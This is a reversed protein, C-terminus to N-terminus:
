KKSDYNVTLNCKGNELELEIESTGASYKAESRMVGKTAQGDNNFELGVASYKDRHRDTGGVTMMYRLASTCDTKVAYFQSVIIGNPTAKYVASDMPIADALVVKEATWSRCDWELPQRLAANMPLTCIFSSEKLRSGFKSKLREVTVPGELVSPEKLYGPFDAYATNSILAAVVIALVPRYM